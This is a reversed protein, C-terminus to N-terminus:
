RSYDESSRSSEVQSPASQQKDRYDGLVNRVYHQTEAYPPVGGWRRVAAPGANYAALALSIDGSFDQLQWALYESGGAVNQQPHFPDKVGLLAATDPMLQMLGQAGAPSVAEPQFGSEQRIVSEILLPDLGRARSEEELIPWLWPPAESPAEGSPLTVQIEGTPPFDSESLIESLPTGQPIVVPAQPLPDLLGYKSSAIRNVLRSIGEPHAKPPPTPTPAQFRQAAVLSLQTCALMTLLTRSWM